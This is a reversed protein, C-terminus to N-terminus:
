FQAIFVLLKRCHVHETDELHYGVSIPSYYGHGYKGICCNPRTVLRSYGGELMRSRSDRRCTKALTNKVREDVLLGVFYSKVTSVRFHRMRLLITVNDVHRQYLRSVTM